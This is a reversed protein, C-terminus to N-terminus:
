IPFTPVKYKKHGIKHCRECLTTVLHPAYKWPKKHRQKRELFHYQKHHIQLIHTSECVVCKGGDRQLIKERFKKWRPDKLLKSYTEGWQEKSYGM